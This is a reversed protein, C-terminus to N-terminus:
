DPSIGLPPREDGGRGSLSRRHEPGDLSGQPAERGRRGRRAATESLLRPPSLIPEGKTRSGLRDTAGDLSADFPYGPLHNRLFALLAPDTKQAASKAPAKTTTHTTKGSM